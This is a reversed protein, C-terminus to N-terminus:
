GIRTAQFSALRWSGESRVWLQTAVAVMLIETDTDRVVVSQNLPGVSVITYGLSRYQLDPREVSLFRFKNRISSLYSQKNEILGNAHVHVLDDTLISALADFDQRILASIRRQEMLEIEHIVHDDLM